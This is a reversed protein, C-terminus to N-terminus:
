PTVDKLVVFAGSAFTVKNDPNGDQTGQADWIYEGGAPVLTMQASTLPVRVTTSSARAIGDSENVTFIPDSGSKDKARRVSFKISDADLDNIDLGPITSTIPLAGSANDANYADRYRVTVTGDDSVLSVINVNAGSALLQEVVADAIADPDVSGGGWNADGHAQLDAIDQGTALGDQLEAVADAAIKAATIADDELTMADGAQAATKAPDYANTLSYGTKDNNTGVTVPNAVSNVSTATTWATDGRDRLAEASDTSADFTGGIDSPTSAAKSALAKLFGLVTNVGSGTFAGLRSILNGTDTKVAAVDASVSAGAPAGLRAYNDGTQNVSTATLVPSAVDFLKKFAAAIQGATETLTTGLIQVLNSDRYQQAAYVVWLASIYLSAGGRQQVSTDTTTFSGAIVGYFGATVTHDYYYWGPQNTADLESANTSSGVSVKNTTGENVAIKVTLGSVGLGTSSSQFYALLRVTDGPKVFM